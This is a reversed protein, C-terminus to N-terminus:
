NLYALGKSIASEITQVCEPLRESACSVLEEHRQTGRELVVHIQLSGNVIEYGGTTKVATPLDSADVFVYSSQRASGQHSSDRLQDTLLSAINLEDTYTKSSLFVPRVLLPKRTHVPIHQRTNADLLGIDFSRTESRPTTLYPKQVTNLGAAMDVVRDVAFNMLPEVDVFRDDKLKAGAMGELVAETLLGREYPTAEYSLQNASAGSLIYLGARDKMRELARRQDEPANRGSIIREAIGAACTDLILVQKHAHIGSFWQSLEKGSIARQSRIAQDDLVLDTVEQTPYFYEDGQAIGHGALYVAVVDQPQAERVLKDFESVINARTPQQPKPLSTSLLAVHVNARNFLAEAGLSLSSAMDAADQAAYKLDISRDTDAYQSIGVVIAWLHQEPLAAVPNPESLTIRSGPSPLNGRANFAQIEVPYQDGRAVFRRFDQLPIRLQAGQGDVSRTAGPIPTEKGNVRVVVAGIGGGQDKLHIRLSDDGPKLLDITVAPYIDIQHFPEVNLRPRSDLGIAKALLHPEFFAERLQDLFVANLGVVWYLNSNQGGQPADFRGQPDVVANSGDTFSVFVAESQNSEFSWLRATGDRGASLIRNEDVTIASIWGEHGGLVRSEGNLGWLFITGGGDAAIIRTDDSSLGLSTIAIAGFGFRRLFRGSHADVEDTFGEDTGLFALKGDHTIAATRMERKVGGGLPNPSFRNGSYKWLVAGNNLSYMRASNDSLTVLISNQDPAFQASNPIAPDNGTGIALMNTQVAKAVDWVRVTGDASATVLRDGGDRSVKIQYVSNQHGIYRHLVVGSRWNWGIVTSPASREPFADSTGSSAFLETGDRSFALSTIRNVDAKFSKTQEGSAADWIRITGADDGTAIAHFTTSYAIAGLPKVLGGLQSTVKDNALNWFRIVNDESGTLALAGDPSFITSHVTSAAPVRLQHLLTGSNADWVRAVGDRGAALVQTGSLNVGVSLVEKENGQFAQLQRGTLLDWLHVVYAQKPQQYGGGASVLYRGDKSVAIGNIRSGQVVRNSEQGTAISWIRVTGDISGSLGQLGDPTFAVSTVAASHGTFKQIEQGTSVDWVRASFDAPRFSPDDGSGSILHRGDSSFAVSTVVNQHGQFSRIVQGTELSWLLVGQNHAIAVSQNDASFAVANIANMPVDFRRIEKALSPDWVRLTGDWGGTVIWKGDSSYGIATVTATHGLPVKLVPERPDPPIGFPGQAISPQSAFVASVIAAVCAIWKM